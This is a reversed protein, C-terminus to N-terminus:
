WNQRMACLKTSPLRHTDFLFISTPIGSFATIYYARLRFCGAVHHFIFLFLAKEMFSMRDVTM